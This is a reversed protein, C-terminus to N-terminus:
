STGPAQTRAPPEPPQVRKSQEDMWPTAENSMAGAVTAAVSSVARACISGERTCAEVAANKIALLGRGMEAQQDPTATVVAYALFGILAFKYLRPM